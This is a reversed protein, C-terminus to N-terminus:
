AIRHSLHAPFPMSANPSTLASFFTAEARKHSFYKNGVRSASQALALRHSAERLRNLAISLARHTNETVVEAVGPNDWAWRAASCHEPGYILLPLAARTYDTLKSPFSLASGERDAGEFSMPVFLVDAESRLRHMLEDSPLMGGLQITPQKLGHSAAAANDLPGYILLRCNAEALCAALERISRVDGASNLSGAFAVTISPRREQIREPPSPFRPADLARSPYLVTGPAGYRLQYEEAMYPSICLRSHAQRYVQGFQQNLWNRLAEPLSVISPWDDHCVLHLPVQAVRAYRSATLWLFEHTVSLVADPAFGSMARRVAGVRWRALISYAATVWRHFRTRLPRGWGMTIAAYAVGKLRREPMSIRLNGEIIRLQKPPYTQLLRYLLASGHCSSEVPVDGVYVLNPLAKPLDRV